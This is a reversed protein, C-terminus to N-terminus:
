QVIRGFTPPAVFSQWYVLGGVLLFLAAAASLTRSLFTVMPRRRSLSLPPPAAAAAFAEASRERLAALFAADPAPADRGAAALLARLPDDNPQENQPTM